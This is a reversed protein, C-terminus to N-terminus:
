YGICLIGSNWKQIKIPWFKQRIREKKSPGQNKKEKKKLRHYRCTQGRQVQSRTWEVQIFIRGGETLSVEHGQGWIPFISQQFRLRLLQFLIGFVLTATFHLVIEIGIEDQGGVRGRRYACLMIVYILQIFQLIIIGRIDMLHIFISVTFIFIWRERLVWSFLLLFPCSQHM